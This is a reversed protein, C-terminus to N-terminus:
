YFYFIFYFHFPALRWGMADGVPEVGWLAIPSM